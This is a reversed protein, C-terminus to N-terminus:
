AQGVRREIGGDPATFQFKGCYCACPHEGTHDPHSWDCASACRPARESRPGPVSVDCADREHCALAADVLDCWCQRRSKNLRSVVTWRHKEPVRLWIPALLHSRLSHHQLWVRARSAKRFKGCGRGELHVWEYVGCRCHRARVSAPATGSEGSAPSAKRASLDSM